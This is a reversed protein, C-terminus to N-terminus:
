DIFRRALLEAVDLDDPTTIKINDPTGEVIAPFVSMREVLSADDTAEFKEREAKAYAEVLLKKAFAQPTQALWLLSRDLTEKIRGDPSGIKVTDKARVAVVAASHSRAKEIAEMITQQRIFPRVADHVLVIDIAPDVQALANRVSDQRRKGGEVVKAAKTLHFEKILSEMQTRSSAQVAVIIEDVDPCLQFRELTHIIIPKGRLPLFQKNVASGMRDGVGAAPIIVSASM